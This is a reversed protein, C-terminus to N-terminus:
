SGSLQEKRFGKWKISLLIQTPRWVQVCHEFLSHVVGLYFSRKQKPCNLFHLARKTLGLRSSSKSYIYDIQADWSMKATVLIGLDKESEVFELEDSGLNYYYIYILPFIKNFLDNLGKGPPAIPVVKCKAINFKMKNQVSWMHLADIDKQLIEHDVNSRIQRWIKTDDAYLSINTDESVCNIMDNIFIVFLLPGLISGQPVGSIVNKLESKHGGILVCQKRDKLYNM